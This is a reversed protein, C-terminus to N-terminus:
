QIPGVRIVGDWQHSPQTGTIDDQTTREQALEMPASCAVALLVLGIVTVAGRLSRM